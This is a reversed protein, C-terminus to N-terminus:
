LFHWSIPKYDIFLLFFCRVVKWTYKWRHRSLKQKRVEETISITKFIWFKEAKRSIM